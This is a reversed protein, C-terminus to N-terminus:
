ESPHLWHSKNSLNVGSNGESRPFFLMFLLPPRYIWKDFLDDLPLWLLLSYVAPPIKDGSCGLVSTTTWTLCCSFCPISCAWQITPLLEGMHIRAFTRRSRTGRTMFLYSVVTPFIHPNRPILRGFELLNVTSMWAACTLLVWWAPTKKM